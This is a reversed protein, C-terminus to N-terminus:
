EAGLLGSARRWIYRILWFYMLTEVLLMIQDWGENGVLDESAQLDLLTITGIGLFEAEIFPKGEPVIAQADWLDKFDFIYRIPVKNRFEDGVQAVATKLRDYVTGDFLRRISETFNSIHCALDKLLADPAGVIECAAIVDPDLPEPLPMLGSQLVTVTISPSFNTFNLTPIGQWGRARLTYIGDPIAFLQTAWAGEETDFVGGDCEASIETVVEAGVLAEILVTRFVDSCTGSAPFFGTFNFSNDEPLLIVPAAVLPTDTILLNKGFAGAQCSWAGDPPFTLENGNGCSRIESPPADYAEIAFGQTGDPITRYLVMWHTGSVATGSVNFDFYQFGATSIPIDDTAVSCDISWGSAPDLPEDQAPFHDLLIMCLNDSIYGGASTRRLAVKVTLDTSLNLEIKSGRYFSTTSGFTFLTTGSDLPIRGDYVTAASVKGVLAFFLLVVLILLYSYKKIMTAPAPISGAVGGLLPPSGGNSWGAILLKPHYPHVSFGVRLRFLKVLPLREKVCLWFCHM